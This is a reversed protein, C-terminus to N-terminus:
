VKGFREYARRIGEAITEQRYPQFGGSEVKTIANLIKQLSVPDNLLDLKADPAIGTERSVKAVYAAPDNHDEPPALRWIISQLTDANYVKRYNILTIAAARYGNEVTDFQVFAGARPHAMTGIMGRWEGGGPRMNMPNNNQFSISKGNLSGDYPDATYGAPQSMEPNSWALPQLTFEYDSAAPEVPPAFMSGLDDFGDLAVLDVGEGRMARYALWGAGALLM